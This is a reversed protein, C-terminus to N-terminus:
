KGAFAFVTSLVYEIFRIITELFNFVRETIDTKEGFAPLSVDRDSPPSDLTYKDLFPCLIDSAIKYADDSGSELSSLWKEIANGDPVFYGLSLRILMKASQSETQCLIYELATNLGKVLIECELSESSIVNEDGYYHMAVLTTALDLLSKYGSDPLSVGNKRALAEISDGDGYLPMCLADNVPSMLSDAADALAGSEVKLKSKIFDPSTYKLIKKEISYKFYGYAYSSYDSKMLALQKETYGGPLSSFDCSEIGKMKIDVGSKGYSILRYELPYSTLSTTLVDYLVNGNKGEFRAIDNGHEHGTFVYQINWECFKEAVDKHNRVIFDSMLYQGLYLHELVTHHMMFIIEKKDRHAKEVQEDIWTFLREDMGDGDEGPNNSDVAILRFNEPLDATYSATLTDTELADCYCVNRYYEKFEEPTCDNHYDHNGPITYIKIGTKETYATFLDAVFEHESKKGGRTMDGPILIFDVKNKQASNLFSNTIGVSEAYLNGSGDAHFYLENEPYNVPLSDSYLEIHLDSAVAFDVRGDSEASCLPCVCLSSLIVAATILLSIIKKM